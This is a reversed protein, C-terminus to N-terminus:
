KGSELKLKRAKVIEMTIDHVEQELINIRKDAEKMKQNFSPTNYYREYVTNEIKNIKDVRNDIQRQILGM